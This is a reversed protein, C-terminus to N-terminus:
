EKLYARLLHRSDAQPSTTVREIKMNALRPEQTAPHRIIGKLMEDAVRRYPSEVAKVTWKCEECEGNGERIRFANITASTETCTGICLLFQGLHQREVAARVTNYDHGSPNALGLQHHSHWEGIHQLGLVRVLIDGVANLYGIDQNFFATQHNAEAGPGIM